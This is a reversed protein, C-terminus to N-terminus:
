SEVLKMGSMSVHSESNREWVYLHFPCFLVGGLGVKSFDFPQLFPDDRVSTFSTVRRAWM